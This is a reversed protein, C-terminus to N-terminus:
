PNRPGPAGESPERSAGVRLRPALREMTKPGIGRVRELQEVKTFRGHERRYAIIRGAIVTGVGHLRELQEATAENLSIRSTDSAVPAGASTAASQSQVAKRQAARLRAAGEQFRHATTALPTGPRAQPRGQVFRVVMGVLLLMVLAVLALAESRTIALRQQVRYLWVRITEREM